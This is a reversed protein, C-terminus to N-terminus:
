FVTLGLIIEVRNNKEYKLLLENFVCTWGFVYMFVFIDKLMYLCLKFTLLNINCLINNVLLEFIVNEYKNIGCDVNVNLAHFSNQYHNCYTGKYEATNRTTRLQELINSYRIYSRSHDKAFTSM